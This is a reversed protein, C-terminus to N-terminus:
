KDPDPLHPFLPSSVSDANYQPYYIAVIFPRSFCKPYAFPIMRAIIIVVSLAIDPEQTPADKASGTHHNFVM